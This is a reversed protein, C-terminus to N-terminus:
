LAAAERGMPRRSSSWTCSAASWTKALAASSGEAVVDILLANCNCGAIRGTLDLLEVRGLAPEVIEPRHSISTNRRAGDPLRASPPM